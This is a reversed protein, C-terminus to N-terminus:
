NECLGNTISNDKPILVRELIGLAVDKKMTGGVEILGTNPNYCITLVQVKNRESYAEIENM